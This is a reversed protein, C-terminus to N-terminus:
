QNSTKRSNFEKHLIMKIVAAKSINMQEAEKEILDSTEKSLRLTFPISKDNNTMM